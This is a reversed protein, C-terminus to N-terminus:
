YSSPLPLLLCFPLSAAGVEMSYLVIFKMFDSVCYSCKKSDCRATVGGLVALFIALVGFFLLIYFFAMGITKMDESSTFLENNKM